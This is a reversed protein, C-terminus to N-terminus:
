ETGDGTTSEGDILPTREGVEPDEDDDDDDDNSFSFWEAIGISAVFTRWWADWGRAGANNEEEANNEEDSLTNYSQQGGLAKVVDCKCVPCTRRRTVLWPTICDVHFEHGCPLRMVRSVDEVYEELCVVCEQSPPFYKFGPLVQARRRSTRSNQMAGGTPASLVRVLPPATSSSSTSLQPDSPLSFAAGPASAKENQLHRIIPSVPIDQPATPSPPDSPPQYTHVPLQDVISKPARWKRRRYRSRLLLM